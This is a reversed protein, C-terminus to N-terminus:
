SLPIFSVFVSSARLTLSSVNIFRVLITKLHQQQASTLDVAAHDGQQIDQENEDDGGSGMVGANESVGEVAPEAAPADGSSAGRTDAQRDRSVRTRRPESVIGSSASSSSSSASTVADSRNSTSDTKGSNSVSSDVSDTNYRQVVSYQAMEAPDHHFRLHMTMGEDVSDTEDIMSSGLVHSEDVRAQSSSNRQMSSRTKRTSRSATSRSSTSSSSTSASSNNMKISENEAEGDIRVAGSTRQRRRKVRQSISSTDESSGADTTSVDATSVPVQTNEDTISPQVDDDSVAVRRKRRTPTFSQINENIQPNPPSIFSHNCADAADLMFSDEVLTGDGAVSPHEHIVGINPQTQDASLTSFDLPAM